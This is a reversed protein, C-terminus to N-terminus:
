EEELVKIDSVLASMSSEDLSNYIGRIHRNQDILVFNETHLFKNIDKNIGLDEEVFYFKRGLDYIEEKTGTLLKWKEYRVHEKKAYADLVPVSDHEPTVTHSILMVEDDDSFEEQLKQMSVAMKPCIGPCTTFFFNAIYIKGATNKATFANGQQDTLKFDRIKHFTDANDMEWRPTFEASNYYPLKRSEKQKCAFLISFAALVIIKKM